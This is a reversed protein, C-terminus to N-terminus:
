FRLLEACELHGRSGAVQEPVLGKANRVHKPAGRELLLSVINSRGSGAAAHLATGWDDMQRMNDYVDENDPAANVEAGADLLAHLIDERGERAAVWLASRGKVTAGSKILANIIDLGSSSAAVELASQIGGRLNANPDAGNELLYKVLPFKDAGM